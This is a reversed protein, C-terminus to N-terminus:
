KAILLLMARGKIQYNTGEGGIFDEEGPAEFANGENWNSTDMVRYWSRGNGPWPLTFDVPDKWGNYAVYIAPAPDDFETGDIRYAIAHQNPDDWFGTSPTQGAANFWALDPMYNSNNDNGTYFDFPRLAPHAKRFEMSRKAFSNFYQQEQTWNDFELWTCPSDVKYPNNNGNLSRLYESGYTIMPTGASLMMFAFGNRAGKRQDEAIGNQDWSLNHDSGGDSPGCPWSQNNNKENFSYLDKLTFGDHAVMFNISNWPKRGDDGFLSSSGSFVNALQGPTVDEVGMKNQDARLEDRFEENWESWGFPFNGVQFSNGGIAWPEAILDIGPGGTEPRHGLESVIANLATNPHDRDFHFCDDECTNGLVSALDFRYGDVGLVDTWYALSDIILDQAQPQFTNYNHGIGTNDYFFVKEGNSNSALTYYEANDLGRWSWLTTIEPTDQSWVGGEATHNYVVDVYVKIGQDHFAKVMDQFERTPGGPSQDAAYRRDPAFYNLTMYGWYNDGDTSDVTIDNQDNQTEQLPLFEVATVGLDALYAAKLAAGKYTGRYEAPISEDQMTLGRLHTEYVIEDKLPREPKVGIDRVLESRKLVIGKPAQPGSNRDRDDPGTAYITGDQFDPHTPDHSIELAYPDYLLKNPNFRHGEASVDTIFGASSGPEWAEDYLWNPGWARYGYYITALSELDSAPITRSWIGDGDDDQMVFRYDATANRAQAYVWLELRTANKSYVSFTIDSGDSSYRAGLDALAPQHFVCALILFLWSLRKILGLRNEYYTLTFYRSLPM